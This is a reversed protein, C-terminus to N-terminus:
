DGRSWEVACPPSTLLKRESRVGNPAMNNKNECKTVDAFYSGQQGGSEPSRGLPVPSRGARATGPQASGVATVTRETRAQPGRLGRFFRAVSTGRPPKPRHLRRRWEDWPQASDPKSPGAGTRTPNQRSAMARPRLGTSSTGHITGVRAIFGSLPVDVGRQYVLM